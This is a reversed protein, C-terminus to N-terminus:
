ASTPVPARAAAVGATGGAPPARAARAPSSARLPRPARWRAPPRAAARRAPRRHRARPRRLLYCSDSADLLLGRLTYFLLMCVTVLCEALSLEAVVSVIEACVGLLYTVSAGGYDALWPDGRATPSPTKAKTATPM